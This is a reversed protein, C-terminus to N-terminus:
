GLALAGIQLSSALARRRLNALGFRWSVGRQPVRKLLALLLWAIAAAAILLRRRRGAHDVGGASGAGAV